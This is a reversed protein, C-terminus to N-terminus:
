QVRVGGTGHSVSYDPTPNDVTPTVNNEAQMLAMREQEPTLIGKIGKLGKAAPYDANGYLGPVGGFESARNGASGSVAM